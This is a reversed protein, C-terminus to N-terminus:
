AVDTWRPDEGVQVAQVVQDNLSAAGFPASAGITTLDPFREAIAELRARSNLVNERTPLPLVEKLLDVRLEVIADPDSIVDLEVLAARVISHVEPTVGNSALAPNWECSIRTLDEDQGAAYSQNTVRFPLREGGPILLTSAETRVGNPRVLASALLLGGKASKPPHVSGGLELLQDPEAAWIIYDVQLPGRSAFTLTFSGASRKNEIGAVKAEILRDAPLARLAAEISRIMSALTGSTPYSFITEPLRAPAGELARLLTEPYFLPAWALRHYLASLKASPLGTVNRCFSEILLEHFTRGHNALSVSELDHDAFGPDSAKRSAHLSSRTAALPALESRMASQLEDPLQRLAALQNAILVDPYTDAGVRMVPAPTDRWTGYQSLTRAVLAFFRGADNRRSADYSAVPAQPDDNFSTFELFTMGADFLRGGVPVGAFHGGLRSTPTVLTVNVNRKALELTALMAAVNSGVVAVSPRANM